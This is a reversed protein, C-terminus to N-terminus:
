LRALRSLINRYEAIFEDPERPDTGYFHESDYGSANDLELSQRIYRVHDPQVERGEGGYWAHAVLERNRTLGLFRKETVVRRVKMKNGPLPGELSCGLRVLNTRLERWKIRREIKSIPRSHHCIWDSIIALVERDARDSWDKPVLRHQAVRLVFKFLDQEGCTLLRGNRDLSVLLAVLATRKNGNHFPHNHVLSHLLAAACMEATPYKLVAGSATAPRNVASELLGEDRVGPPTIPDESQAFQRELEGHIRAVDEVDLLQCSREHGVTRWRYPPTSGRATSAASCLQPEAATPVTGHSDDMLGARRLKALAGKPLVRAATSVTIGTDSLRDILEPTDLGLRQRWYALTQLERPTPAGLARHLKASDSSRVRQDVDEVYDFGADWAGVLAEELDM